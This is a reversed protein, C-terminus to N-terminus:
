LIILLIIVIIFNNFNSFILFPNDSWKPSVLASNTGTTFPIGKLSIAISKGM